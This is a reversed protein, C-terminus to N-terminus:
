NSRDRVRKQEASVQCRGCVKVSPTSLQLLGPSCHRSHPSKRSTEEPDSARGATGHHQAGRERNNAATRQEGPQRETALLEAHEAESHEAPRQHPRCSFNSLWECTRESHRELGSEVPIWFEVKHCV